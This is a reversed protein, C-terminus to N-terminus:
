ARAFRAILSSMMYALIILILQAIVSTLFSVEQFFTSADLLVFLWAFEFSSNKGLSINLKCLVYFIFWLLACAIIGLYPGYYCHSWSPLQANPGELLAASLPDITQNLAIGFVTTPDRALENGLLAGIGRHLPAILGLDQCIRESLSSSDPFYMFISDANQFIRDLIMNLDLGRFLLFLMFGGFFILTAAFFLILKFTLSKKQKIPIGSLFHNLPDIGLGKVLFLISLLAVFSAGKSQQAITAFLLILYGLAARGWRGRFIFYAILGYVVSGLINAIPALLRQGSDLYLYAIRSSSNLSASSIIVSISQAISLISAVVLLITGKRESFSEFIIRIKPLLLNKIARGVFFITLICITVVYIYDEISCDQASLLITATSASILVPIYLPFVLAASLGLVGRWALLAFITVPVVLLGIYIPDGFLLALFNYRIM